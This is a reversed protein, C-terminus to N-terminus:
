AHPSGLRTPRPYAAASGPADPASVAASCAFSMCFGMGYLSHHGGEPGAVVVIIDEAKRVGLAAGDVVTWDGVPINGYPMTDLPIRAEQFLLEQLRRRDIGAKDFIAAHTPNVVVVPSGQSWYYCTGLTRMARGLHDILHYHQTNGYSPIVDILGEVAAVTVVSQAADYGLSVHLPEWPSEEEAEAICFTYKLPSGHNAMDINEDFAGGINGLVFRLARGVVGNAFPGPGGTGRGSNLNCRHRIPGNVITLPTVPNTTCQVVYLNFREQIVAGVAAVVLPLHEPDCGAMYANVAVNAVTGIGNLPPIPGIVTAPDMRSAHLFEDIAAQTPARFPLGDTWRRRHFESEVSELPLDHISILGQSRQTLM